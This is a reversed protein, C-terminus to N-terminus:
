AQTARRFVLSRFAFLVTNAAVFLIPIMFLGLASWEITVFTTQYTVPDGNPSTSVNTVNMVPLIFPILNLGLFLLIL